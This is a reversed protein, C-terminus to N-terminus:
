CDLEAAPFGEAIEELRERSLLEIDHNQLVRIAEVDALRKLTRSLTERTLNLHTAVDKRKAGTMLSGDGSSTRLLYAAVRSGADRLALDELLGVLHRVRRGMGKLFELCLGHHEELLSQLQRRPILVCVSDEIAEASAPCAFGSLTATEAFTEGEDVLRLNHEKGNPAVMFVRVRGAGLCFLGQCEDESSYVLQGKDFSLVRSSSEILRFYEEPFRAFLPSKRLIDSASRSM